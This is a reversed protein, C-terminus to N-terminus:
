DASGESIAYACRFGVAYFGTDRAVSRSCPGFEEPAAAEYSSGRAVHREEPALNSEVWEAVGSALGHVGEPSPPEGSTSRPSLSCSYRPRSTCVLGAAVGPDDGWPFPRAPDGYAVLVWEAETPLRGGVYVCYERAQRFSVCDMPLEPDGRRFACRYADVVDAPSCRGARVCEDYEGVSVEYRDIDFPGLCERSEVAPPDYIACPSGGIVACGARVRVRGQTPAPTERDVETSGPVASAGTGPPGTVPSAPDSGSAEVARYAPAGRAASCALTCFALVIAWRSRM